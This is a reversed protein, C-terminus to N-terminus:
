TTSSLRFIARIERIGAARVALPPTLARRWRRLSSRSPMGHPKMVRTAPHDFYVHILYLSPPAIDPYLTPTVYLALEDVFPFSLFGVDHGVSTRTELPIEGAASTRAIELWRDRTTGKISYPCLTAREALAYFTAPLFGSTWTDAGFLVWAGTDRTTYQPYSTPIGPTLNATALLKQSILPDFLQPPPQPSGFTSTLFLATSLLLLRM